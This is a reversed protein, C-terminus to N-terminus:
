LPCSGDHPWKQEMRNPPSSDAQYKRPSDTRPVGEVFDGGQTPVSSPVPSVLNSGNMRRKPNVFDPVRDKLGPTFPQLGFGATRIILGGNQGIEWDSEEKSSVM